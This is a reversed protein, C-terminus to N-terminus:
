TICSVKMVVVATLYHLAGEDCSGSDCQVEANTSSFPWM